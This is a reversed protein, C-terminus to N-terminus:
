SRMARLLMRVEAIHSFDVINNICALGLCLVGHDFGQASQAMSLSGAAVRVEGVLHNRKGRAAGGLQTVRETFFILGPRPNLDRAPLTEADFRVVQKISKDGRSLFFDIPAM